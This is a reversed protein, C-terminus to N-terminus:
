RRLGARRAEVRTASTMEKPSTATPSPVSRPRKLRIAAVPPISRERENKRVTPKM